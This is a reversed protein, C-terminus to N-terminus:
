SDIQNLTDSLNLSYPGDKMPGNEMTPQGCRLELCYIEDVGGIVFKRNELKKFSAKESCANVRRGRFNWRSRRDFSARPARVLISFRVRYKYGTYMGLIFVLMACLFFWQLYWLYDGFGLQKEDDM